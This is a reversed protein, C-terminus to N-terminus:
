NPSSNVAFAVREDRDAITADADRFIFQWPNAIGEILYIGRQLARELSRTKPQRKCILQHFHVAPAQM